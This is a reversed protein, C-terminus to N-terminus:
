KLDSLYHVADTLCRSVRLEVPTDELDYAIREIRLLPTGTECGLIRADGRDAAIATLREAARAITIGWRDSYLRYVNNPIADLAEFGAFREAPLSLTEVLLPKKSIHRERGIRWVDSKAPIALAEIELRDAQTRICSSVHSQPFSPKGTKPQLRFYRFLIRSDEPEAVYTGRGQRRVLLNEATIADLAKRVTGQSVGIERALDMESPIMQGPLWTGDILRQKLKDKVQVYLPKYAFSGVMDSM